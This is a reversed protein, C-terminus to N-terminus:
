DDEAIEDSEGGAEILGIGLIHLRDQAGVVRSQLLVDTVEAPCEVLEDAVAHHRHEASRDSMLVVRLSRDPASKPHELAHIQEVLSRGPSPRWTRIPMLVPSAMTVRPSVPGTIPSPTVPSTTFM